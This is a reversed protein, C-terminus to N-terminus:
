EAPTLGHQIAFKVLAPVDSVGLKKMLRSRYTDVSKPSLNVLAAIGVSSHGEVVLQLVQRERVSLSDLPGREDSREVSALDFHTLERSVYRGGLMVARAAAVIEDSASGKLLYGSAGAAFARHVYEADSYMSLIVVRTHPCRERLAATADIGNLGPMAVDLIAVDPQQEEAVRLAERGDGAEGVVQIGSLELLGRLGYRVVAHDDALLARIKV